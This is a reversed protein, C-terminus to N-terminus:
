KRGYVRLLLLPLVKVGILVVHGHRGEPARVGLMGIHRGKVPMPQLEHGPFGEGVRVLPIRLLRRIPLHAPSHLRLVLNGSLCRLLLEIRLHPLQDLEHLLSVRSDDRVLLVRHLLADLLRRPVARLLLQALDGLGLVPLLTLLRGPFRFLGPPRLHLQSLLRPLRPALDHALVLCRVGLVLLLLHVVHALSAVLLELGLLRVVRVRLALLM